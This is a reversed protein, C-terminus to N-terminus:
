LRMLDELSAVEEPLEEEAPDAGQKSQPAIPPLLREVADFFSESGEPFSIDIIKSVLRVQDVALLNRAARMGASGPLGCGASILYPIADPAEQALQILSQADVEEGRLIARIAPFLILM